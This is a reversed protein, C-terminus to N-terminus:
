ERLAEPGIAVDPVESSRNPSKPDRRFAPSKGRRQGEIVAGGQRLTVTQADAAFELTLGYARQWFVGKGRPILRYERDGAFTAYLAGQDERVSLQIGAASFEYEGPLTTLERPDMTPLSTDPNEATDGLAVRLLGWAFQSTTAGDFSNALVVVSLEQGPVFINMSTFGPIGGSHFYVDESGIDSRHMIGFGYDIGSMVTGSPAIMQALSKPSLLRGSFLAENWRVLDAPTSELGGAGNAWGRERYADQPIAEFGYDRDFVHGDSLEPTQDVAFDTSTLGLPQLIRERTFEGWSKGSRAEILASLLIYNSNSYEWRTGAEFSPPLSAILEVLPKLGVFLSKSLTAFEPTATLEGLGSTHSLLMRVTIKHANKITPFDHNIPEDLNLLGDEALLLVGAATFQKTVSGILFRPTSAPDIIMSGECLTRGQRQVRYSGTFGFERYSKALAECTSSRNLPPINLPAGQTALGILIGSVFTIVGFNGFRM